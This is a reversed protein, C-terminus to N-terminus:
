ATLKANIRAVTAATWVAAESGRRIMAARKAAGIM